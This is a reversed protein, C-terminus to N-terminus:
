PSPVRHTYALFGKSFAGKLKIARRVAAAKPFGSTQVTVIRNDDAGAVVAERARAQKGAAPLLNQYEFGSVFGATKGRRTLEM